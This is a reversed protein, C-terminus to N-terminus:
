AAPLARGAGGSALARVWARDVEVAVSRQLLHVSVVLRCSKKIELLIGELGSLSGDQISVREGVRLYPWPQAQLNSRVVARLTEIEAEEVPIPVRGNGVVSVVGPTTLIPLRRTPDFRCFVYGPILPLEIEKQRDSWRRRSRYLPLFCEFGKADLIGAIHKEWNRRASLAYWPYEGGGRRIGAAEEGNTKECNTLPMYVALTSAVAM